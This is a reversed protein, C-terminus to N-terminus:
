FASKIAIGAAELASRVRTAIAVAEPNDGHICLSRAETQIVTGDAAVIEGTEALRVAREAIFGADHIVAGTESRPM